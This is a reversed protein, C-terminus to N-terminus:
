DFFDLEKVELAKAINEVARLTINRKVQEIESIYNQHYGTMEALEVQTIRREKRLFRLRKGFRTEIRMDIINITNQKELMLEKELASSAPQQPIRDM